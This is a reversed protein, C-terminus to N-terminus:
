FLVIAGNTSQRVMTVASRTRSPQKHAQFPPLRALMDADRTSRWPSASRDRHRTSPLGNRFPLQNAHDVVPPPPPPSGSAAHCETQHNKSTVLTPYRSAARAPPNNHRTRPSRYVRSGEDVLRRSLAGLRSPSPAFLRWKRNNVAAITLVLHQADFMPRPHSHVL